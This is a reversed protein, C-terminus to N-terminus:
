GRGPDAGAPRRPAGRGRRRASRARTRGARCPRTAARRRCAAGRTCGGSGSRRIRRPRGRRAASSRGMIGFLTNSSVSSWNKAGIRGYRSSAVTLSIMILPGPDLDEDLPAPLELEDGRLEGAALREERREPVERLVDALVDVLRVGDEFPAEGVARADLRQDRGDGGVSRVDGDAAEELLRERDVSEDAEAREGADGRRRELRHDDRLEVDHDRSAGAAALRRHEVGEGAEDGVALADDDDLVRALDLELLRM